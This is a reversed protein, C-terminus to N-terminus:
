WLSGMLYDGKITPTFRDYGAGPTLTMEGFYVDRDNLSYLDVRCFDMDRALAEAIELMRELTAPKKADVIGQPYGFVFDQPEWRANYITRTHASSRGYDVEIFHCKGHFVFFKYDLPVEYQADFLFKEIIIAPPIDRYHYEKGWGGYISNMWIKCQGVVAEAVIEQKNKVLINWGSGHTAKVVFRQPLKSFDIEEPNTTTLLIENLIEPYGREAVFKRVAFKDALMAAQPVPTFLKRNSIKENFTRPHRLHPFYGNAKCFLLREVAVPGLLRSIWPHSRLRLRVRRFFWLIVRQSFGTQELNEATSPPNSTV